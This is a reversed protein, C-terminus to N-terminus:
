QPDSSDGDIRQNYKSDTPLGLSRHPEAGTTLFDLLHCWGFEKRQVIKLSCFRNTTSNGYRIAFVLVMIYYKELDVTKIHFNKTVSLTM